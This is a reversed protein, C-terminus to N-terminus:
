SVLYTHHPGALSLSLPSPCLSFLSLSLDTFDGQRLSQQAKATATQQQKKEARKERGRGEELKVLSGGKHGEESM